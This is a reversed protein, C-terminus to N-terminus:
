QAKFKEIIVNFYLQLLQQLINLCCLHLLLHLIWEENATEKPSCRVESSSVSQLLVNQNQAVTMDTPSSDTDHCIDLLSEAHRDALLFM